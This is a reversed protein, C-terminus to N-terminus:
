PTKRMSLVARLPFHDSVGMASEYQFRLPRGRKSAQRPDQNLVKFLIPATWQNSIFIFDLHSWEGKYFYTGPASLSADQFSLRGLPKLETTLVKMKAEESHSINGDGAAIVKRETPQNSILKRLFRVALQRKAFPAQQSPFHFAFLSLIEPNQKPGPLLLGVQLIGRTNPVGPIAHLKARGITRLKSIVGVDIGRPDDGEILVRTVYDKSHPLQDALRNLVELNEVESLILIDPGQLEAPAVAHALRRLKERLVDESWDLTLCQKRHYFSFLRKCDRKEQAGKQALPIYTSDDKGNSKSTDFLNEANMTVVTLKSNKPEAKAIPVFPFSFLLTLILAAFSKTM